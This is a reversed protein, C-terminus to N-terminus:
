KKEIMVTEDNINASPVIIMVNANIVRLRSTELARLWEDCEPQVLAVAPVAGTFPACQFKFDYYHYLVALTEASDSCSIPLLLLLLVAASVSQKKM